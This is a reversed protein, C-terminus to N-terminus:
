LRTDEAGDDFDPSLIPFGRWDPPPTPLFSVEADPRGVWEAFRVEHPFKLKCDATTKVGDDGPEFLTELDELSWPGQPNEALIAAKEPTLDYGLADMVAHLSPPAPPAAKRWRTVRGELDVTMGCIWDINIPARESAVLAAVVEPDNLDTDM